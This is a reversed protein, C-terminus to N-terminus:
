ITKLCYEVGDIFSTMAPQIVSAVEPISARLYKVIAKDFESFDIGPAVSDKIQEATLEPMQPEETDLLFSTKRGVGVLQAPIVNEQAGSLMWLSETTPVM